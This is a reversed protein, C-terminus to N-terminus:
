SLPGLPSFGPPPPPPRPVMNFIAEDKMAEYDDLKYKKAIAQLADPLKDLLAKSSSRDANTDGVNSSGALKRTHGWGILM